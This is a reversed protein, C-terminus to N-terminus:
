INWELFLNYKPNSILNDRINFAFDGFHLKKFVFIDLKYRPRFM